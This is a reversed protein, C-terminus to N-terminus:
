YMLANEVDSQWYTVFGLGDTYTEAPLKVTSEGKSQNNKDVMGVGLNASKVPENQGPEGLLAIGAYAKKGPSLTVVAQPKSDDLVPYVAQAGDFRLFPAYYAHCTTSGTNTVTLLLHNIPRSVSSVEVTSNKPTCAPISPAAKENPATEPKKGNGGAHKGEAPVTQTEPTGAEPADPQATSGTSTAAPTATGAAGAPKTGMAKDEGGCATLSLAAALVTVALATTRIRNTRM